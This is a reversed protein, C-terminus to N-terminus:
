VDFCCKRGKGKKWSGGLRWQGQSQSCREKGESFLKLKNIHKFIIYVWITLSNHIHTHVCVTLHKYRTHSLIYAQTCSHQHMHPIYTSMYKHVCTSTQYQCWYNEAMMRGKKMSASDRLHCPEICLEILPSFLYSGRNIEQRKNRLSPIVPQNGYWCAM